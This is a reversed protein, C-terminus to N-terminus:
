FDASKQDRYQQDKIHFYALSVSLGSITQLM